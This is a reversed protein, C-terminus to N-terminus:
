PMVFEHGSKPVTLVPCPSKRVVKEAVSGMLMHILGSRGHTGIVILDIENEKAYRVIEVLPNGKRRERKVTLKENWSEGPRNALQKEASEMEQSIFDEVPMFEPDMLMPTSDDVVTLLHLEADFQSSLETAYQMAHDSFESFDTPALIRKLQIMNAGKIALLEDAKALRTTAFLLAVM